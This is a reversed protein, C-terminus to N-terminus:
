LVAEHEIKFSSLTKSEMITYFEMGNLSQQDIKINFSPFTKSASIKNREQSEMNDQPQLDNCKDDRDDISDFGDGPNEENRLQYRVADEERPNIRHVQYILICARISFFLAYLM